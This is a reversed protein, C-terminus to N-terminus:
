AFTEDEDEPEPEAVGMHRTLTDYREFLMAARALDTKKGRYGYAADVATDLRAHAQVLNAPMATADYLQALTAECHRARADLVAQAAAEIAVCRRDGSDEIAEPWPFNNYVIKNTYRFDSKIRGCVHKVWAMHTRSSLVGFHRLEANPVCLNADGM